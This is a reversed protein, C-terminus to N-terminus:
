RWFLYQYIPSEDVTSAYWEYGEFQSEKKGKATGNGGGGFLGGLFGSKAPPPSTATSSAGPRSNPGNAHPAFPVGYKALTGIQSLASM